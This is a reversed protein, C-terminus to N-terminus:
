FLFKYFIVEYVEVIPYYVFDQVCEIELKFSCHVENIFHTKCNIGRSNLKKKDWSKLYNIALVQASKKTVKEIEKTHFLIKM